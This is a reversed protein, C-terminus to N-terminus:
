RKPILFAIATAIVLGLTAARMLLRRNNWLLRVRIMSRERAERVSDGDMTEIVLEDPEYTRERGPATETPIKSL